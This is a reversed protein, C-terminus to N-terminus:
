DPKEDDMLLYYKRRIKLEIEVDIEIHPSKDTHTLRRLEEYKMLDVVKNFEEELNYKKTNIKTLANKIADYAANGVIGSAAALLVFYVVDQFLFAYKDSPDVQKKLINTYNQELPAESCLKGISTRLL